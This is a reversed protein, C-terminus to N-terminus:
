APVDLREVSVDGAQDAVSASGGASCARWFARYSPYEVGPTLWGSTM